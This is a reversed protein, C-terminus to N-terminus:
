RSHRGVAERPDGQVAAGALARSVRLDLWGDSRPSTRARPLWVHESLSEREIAAQVVASHPAGPTMAMAETRATDRDLSTAHAFQIRARPVKMDWIAGGVHLDGAFLLTCVSVRSLRRLGILDALPRGRDLLQIPTEGRSSWRMREGTLVSRFRRPERVWAGSRYDFVHWPYLGLIRECCAVDEAPGEIKDRQM